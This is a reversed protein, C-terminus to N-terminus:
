STPRTTTACASADRAGGLALPLKRALPWHARILEPSPRLVFDLKRAPDSQAAILDQKTTLPLRRLDAVTRITEPRVRAEDFVRRYHASFPYLEERVFRALQGDQV